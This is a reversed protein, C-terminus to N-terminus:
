TMGTKLTEYVKSGDTQDYELSLFDIRCYDKSRNESEQLAGQFDSIRNSGKNGVVAPSILFFSRIVVPFLFRDCSRPIIGLGSDFRRKINNFIM